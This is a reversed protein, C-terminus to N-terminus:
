SNSSFIYKEDYSVEYKDLFAKHEEIFDPKKHHEEQNQIYRVVQPVQSKSYSFVGFGSQWNFKRKQWEQKNIFASSSAKLQQVFRSTSIDPHISILLHCHDPMCFIQMCRCNLSNTIGVMYKEVEARHPKM